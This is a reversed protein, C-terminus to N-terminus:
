YNPLVGEINNPAPKPGYFIPGFNKKIIEGEKMSKQFKSFTFTGYTIIGAFLILYLAVTIKSFIGQYGVLLQRCIILTFVIFFSLFPLEEVLFVLYGIGFESLLSFSGLWIILLFFIFAIALTIGSRKLTAGTKNLLYKLLDYLFFVLIVSLVLALIGSFLISKFETSQLSNYIFNIEKTLFNM